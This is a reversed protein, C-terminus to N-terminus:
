RLLGWKGLRSLADDLGYAVAVVAGAAELEALMARQAESLKGGERKLELAYLTGARLFMLDPMGKRTGLARLKGGIAAHRAEGNPVHWWVVGAAGRHALHAVIARHVTEETPVPLGPARASPKRQRQLTSGELM